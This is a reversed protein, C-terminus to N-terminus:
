QADKIDCASSNLVSFEVPFLFALDGCESNINWYFLCVFFMAELLSTHKSLFDLLNLSYFSASSTKKPIPIHRPPSIQASLQFGHAPRIFSSELLSSCVTCLGHYSFSDTMNQLCCSPRLPWFSVLLPSLSLLGSLLPLLDCLTQTSVSHDGTLCPQDGDKIGLRLHKSM